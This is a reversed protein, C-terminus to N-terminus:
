MFAGLVLNVIHESELWQMETEVKHSKSQRVIRGPVKPWQQSLEYLSDGVKKEFRIFLKLCLTIRKQAVVRICISGSLKAEQKCSLSNM